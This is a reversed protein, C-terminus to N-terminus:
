LGPSRSGGGPRRMRRPLSKARARAARQRRHAHRLFQRSEEHTLPL